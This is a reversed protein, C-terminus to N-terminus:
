EKKKKKKQKFTKRHNWISCISIHKSLYPACAFSRKLDALGVYNELNLPSLIESNLEEVMTYSKVVDEHIHSKVNKFM